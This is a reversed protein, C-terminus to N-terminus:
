VKKSGTDELESRIFFIGLSFCVGVETLFAGLFYLNRVSFLFLPIGMTTWNMLTWERLNLLRQSGM